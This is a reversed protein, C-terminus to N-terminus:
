INLKKYRKDTFKGEGVLLVNDEATFPTWPSKPLSGIKEVLNEAVSLKAKVLNSGKGKKLRDARSKNIKSEAQQRRLSDLLNGKRAM